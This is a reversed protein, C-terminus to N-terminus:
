ITASPSFHDCGANTRSSRMFARREVSKAIRINTRDFSTVFEDQWQSRAVSRLAVPIRAPEGARAFGYPASERTRAEITSPVGALNAASIAVGALLASVVVVLGAREDFQRHQLHTDM